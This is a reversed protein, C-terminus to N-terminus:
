PGARQRGEVGEVQRGAAPVVLHRPHEEVGACVGTGHQGVPIPAARRRQKNQAIISLKQSPGPRLLELDLPLVGVHDPEEEISAHVDVSRWAKVTIHAKPSHVRTISSGQVLWSFAVFNFM